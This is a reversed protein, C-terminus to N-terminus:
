EYEDGSTIQGDNYYDGVNAKEYTEPSVSKWGKDDGNVIYLDYSAPYYQMHGPITVCSRSAGTGSCSQYGAQWMYFEGDYDKKEITGKSPACASLVLLVLLAILIKIFKM